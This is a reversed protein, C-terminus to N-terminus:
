FGGLCLTNIWNLIHFTQTNLFVKNKVRNKSRFMGINRASLLLVFSYLSLLEDDLYKYNGIQGGSIYPSLISLTLITVITYMCIKWRQNLTWIYKSSLPERENRDGFVHYIMYSFCNYISHQILFNDDFDMIVLLLAPKAVM